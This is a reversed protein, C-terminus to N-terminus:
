GPAATSPDPGRPGPAAVVYWRGAKLVLGYPELRRDVETPEKWRRYRLHLARGNWM